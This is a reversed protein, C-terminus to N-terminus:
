VTQVTATSNGSASNTTPHWSNWTRLFALCLQTVHTARPLWCCCDSLCQKLISIFENLIVSPNCGSLKCSFGWYGLSTHNRLINLLIHKNPEMFGLQGDCIQTSPPTNLNTIRNRPQHHFRKTTSQRQPHFMSGHSQVASLFVSSNGWGIKERFFCKLAVGEALFTMAAPKQSASPTIKTSTGHPWVM